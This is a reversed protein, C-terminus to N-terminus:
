DTFQVSIRGPSETCYDAVDLGADRMPTVRCYSVGVVDLVWAAVQLPDPLEGDNMVVQHQVYDMAAQRSDWEKRVKGRQVRAPPLGEIRVDGHEGSLYATRVLEADIDAILRSAKRLEYLLRLSEEPDPADALVESLRAAVTTLTMIAATSESVPGGRALNKAHERPATAIVTALSEIREPDTWDIEGDPRKTPEPDVLAAAKAKVDEGHWGCSCDDKRCRDHTPGRTEDTCLDISCFGSRM